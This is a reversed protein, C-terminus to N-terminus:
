HGSQSGSRVVKLHYSLQAHLPSEYPHSDWLAFSLLLWPLRPVHGGLELEAPGRAPWDWRGASVCGRGRHLWAARCGQWAAAAQLSSLCPSYALVSHSCLFFSYNCWLFSRTSFLASVKPDGLGQNLDWRQVESTACSQALWRVRQALNEGRLRPYLCNDISTNPWYAEQCQEPSESSMSCPSRRAGSIVYCYGGLGVMSLLYYKNAPWQRILEPCSLLTVTMLLAHCRGYIAHLCVCSCMQINM